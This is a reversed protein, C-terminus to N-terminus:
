HSHCLRVAERIRPSERRVTPKIANLTVRLYVWRVPSALGVVGSGEQGKTKSSVCANGFSERKPLKTGSNGVQHRFKFNFKRFSFVSQFYVPVHSVFESRIRPLNEQLEFISHTLHLIVPKEFRKAKTSRYTNRRGESYVYPLPGLVANSM